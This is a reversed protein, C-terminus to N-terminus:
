LIGSQSLGERLMALHEPPSEVLPLRVFASPIVGLEALAAKAMIAGQSPSMIAQVVPILRRHISRATALDGDAVARVMAAYEDGAVHGVVSVVGVAGQALHALNLVDDGSYWQLDTAAMVQSAAWLDGKADKVAVIRPHEALRILTETQIPIGTRGPIDYVLVPLDTADAVAGFHAVLGPQTPKNYYPTVVLLGRAGVAAARRAMDISHATDNSGVGAVVVARDGVHAAVLEIVRISEDSTLTASEGTTGNVVIGDHSHALLHDAVALVADEDVDGAPTMPTVMATLVRGFIPSTM